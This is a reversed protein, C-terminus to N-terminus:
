HLRPTGPQAETAGVSRTPVRSGHRPACSLWSPSGLRVAFVRGRAHLDRGQDAATVGLVPHMANAEASRLSRRRGRPGPQTWALLRRAQTRGNRVRERRDLRWRWTGCRKRRGLGVGLSGDRLRNGMMTLIGAAPEGLGASPEGSTRARGAGSGLRRIPRSRTRSVRIRCRASEVYPRRRRSRASPTEPLVRRSSSCPTLAEVGRRMAGVRKPATSRSRWSATGVEQSTGSQPTEKGCRRTSLGVARRRRWHCRRPEVQASKPM